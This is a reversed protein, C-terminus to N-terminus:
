TRGDSMKCDIKLNQFDLEMTKEQTILKTGSFSMDLELWFKLNGDSYAYCGDPMRRSCLNSSEHLDEAM